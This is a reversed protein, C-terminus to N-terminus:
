EKGRGLFKRAICTIACKGEREIWWACREEECFVLKINEEKISAIAMLPCIKREYKAV